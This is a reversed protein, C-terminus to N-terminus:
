KSIRVLFNHALNFYQSRSIQGQIFSLLNTECGYYRLTLRPTM